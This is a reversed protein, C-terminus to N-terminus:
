PSNHPFFLLDVGEKMIDFFLWAYELFRSIDVCVLNKFYTQDIKFM